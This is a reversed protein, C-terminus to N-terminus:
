VAPKSPTLYVIPRRNMRDADPTARYVLKLSGKGFLRHETSSSIAAVANSASVTWGAADEFPVLPAHDDHTRGARTIEYPVGNPEWAPTAAASTGCLLVGTVVLLLTQNAM